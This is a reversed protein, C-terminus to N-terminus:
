PHLMQYYRAIDADSLAKDFVILEDVEGEFHRRYAGSHYQAGVTLGQAVINIDGNLATTNELTGNVYIKLAGEATSFVGTVHYWINPEPVTHSWVWDRRVDTRVSFEFADNMPTGFADGNHQLSWQNEGKAAITAWGTGNWPNVDWRVWCMVTVGDQVNYEPIEPISMRSGTGNFTYGGSHVGATFCGSGVVTGHNHYFSSDAALPGTGDNFHWLGVVDQLGPGLTSGGANDQIQVNVLAYGMQFSNVNRIALHIDNGSVTMIYDVGPTFGEEILTNEYYRQWAVPFETVMSINMWEPTAFRFEATTYTVLQSQIILTGMGTVEAEVGSVTILVYSMHVVPGHKEIIFQPRARVVQGEGQNLVIAGNQYALTQDVYLSNSSTYKMGGTCTINVEGSENRLNTYFELDDDRFSNISFTGVSDAGFVSSGQVGLTIPSGILFKTDGNLIQKDISSAMGDFQSNVVKMHDSEATEMWEPIWTTTVMTILLIMIMLGLMITVVGASADEDHRLRGMRRKTSRTRDGTPSDGMGESM